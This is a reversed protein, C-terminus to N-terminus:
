IVKEIHKKLIVKIAYLIETEIHLASWVQGYAGEGIKGIFKFNKADRLSKDHQVAVQPSVGQKNFLNRKSSIALRSDGESFM